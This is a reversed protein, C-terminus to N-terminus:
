RKGVLLHESKAIQTKLHQYEMLIKRLSTMNERKKKATEGLSLHLELPGEVKVMKRGAKNLSPKLYFKPELRYPEFLTLLDQQNKLNRSSIKILRQLLGRDYLYENLGMYDYQFVNRKIFKAVLNYGIEHRKSEHNVLHDYINKQIVDREFALEKMHKYSGSEIFEEMLRGADAKGIDM